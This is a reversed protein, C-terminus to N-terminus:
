KKICRISLGMSRSVNSGQIKNENYQVGYNFSMNTTTSSITNTWYNGYMNINLFVGAQNRIGAPIINFNLSNTAYINDPDWFSQDSISLSGAAVGNGGASSILGNWNVTSPIRWGVPCIKTTDIFLNYLGGYSFKYQLSDSQYWCYAPSTLNEWQTRPAVYPIATNDNYKNTKLNEIMWYQSGIKTYLYRNGNGDKPTLSVFSSSSQACGSGAVTFVKYFKNGTTDLLLSIATVNSNNKTINTYTGTESTSVKWIVSDLTLSNPYITAKLVLSDSRYPTRAVTLNIQQNSPIYTYLVPNTDMSDAYSGSIVIRRYWVPTVSTLPTPATPTYNTATAGAITLWSSLSTTDTNSQWQYTYQGSAGQPNSATISPIASGACITKNASTIVNNSVPNGASTTIQIINSYWVGKIPAQCGVTTEKKTCVNAFVFARVYYTTGPQLTTTMKNSGRSVPGGDGIVLTHGTKTKGGEFKMYQSPNTYNNVGGWEGIGFSLSYPSNVTSWVVGTAYVESYGPIPLYYSCSVIATTSTNLEPSTVIIANPYQYGQSFLVPALFVFTIIFYIKKM